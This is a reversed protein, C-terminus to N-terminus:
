RSTPQAAPNKTRCLRNALGSGASRALHARGRGLHVQRADCRRGGAGSGQALRVRGVPSNAASRCDGPVQRPKLPSQKISAPPWNWGSACSTVRLPSSGGPHARYRQLRRAPVCRRLEGFSWRKRRDHGRHLRGTGARAASRRLRQPEQRLDFHRGRRRGSRVAGGVPPRLDEAFGCDNAIATLVSTDATLAISPLARRDSRFRGM